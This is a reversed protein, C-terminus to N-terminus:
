KELYGEEILDDVFDERSIYCTAKMNVEEKDRDVEVYIITPLAYTSHKAGEFIKKNEIPEEKKLNKIIKELIEIYLKRIETKSGEKLAEWKTIPM